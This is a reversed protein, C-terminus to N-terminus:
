NTGTTTTTSTTTDVVTIDTATGGLSDELTVTIDFDEVAEIPVIRILAKLTARETANVRL